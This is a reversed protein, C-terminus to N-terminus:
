QVYLARSVPDKAWASRRRLKAALQMPPPWPWTVGQVQVLHEDPDVTLLVIEPTGDVLIANHEVDQPRKRLTAV